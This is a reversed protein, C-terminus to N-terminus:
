RPWRTTRWLRFRRSVRCGRAAQDVRPQRCGAGGIRGHCPVRAFGTFRDCASDAEATHKRQRGATQDADVSRGWVLGRTAGHHGTGLPRAEAGYANGSVSRCQESSNIAVGNVTSFPGTISSANVIDFTSGVTPTFGSALSINLTGNLSATGSVHLQDYKTGATTGGITVDLAGNANQTYTGNVQLKGTCTSSDGPTITASDSVGYDLSGTGYLNGGNLDLSGTSAGALTGNVTTTGATQMYDYSLGGITFTSGSNM